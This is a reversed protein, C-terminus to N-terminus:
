RGFRGVDRLIGPVARLFRAWRALHLSLRGRLSLDAYVNGSIFTEQRPLVARWLLGLKQRWPAQALAVLRASGPERALLRNRWELSPAPWEQTGSEPLIGELFPRMAALASVSGASHQVEVALQNQRALATLHELEQRSAALHPTRLAHLALIVIGLPELPVRLTHGALELEQTQAWMVEFCEAAGSEMGPFRFHIDVCCPWEPHDVTVSHTPLLRDPDVPRERWGRDRLGELLVELDDPAAFVDVDNSIKPRRLGLQVSAPGKIFFVRVGLDEAVRAVLAHGLLVGESVSLGADDMAEAM